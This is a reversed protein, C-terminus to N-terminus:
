FQWAGLKAPKAYPTILSEAGVQSKKHCVLVRTRGGVEPIGDPVIELLTAEFEGCELGRVRSPHRSVVEEVMRSWAVDAAEARVIWEVHGMAWVVEGQRLAVVYSQGDSEYRAELVDGEKLTDLLEAPVSAWASRPATTFFPFDVIMRIGWKWRWMGEIRLAGHERHLRPTRGLYMPHDTHAPIGVSQGQVPFPFRYDFTFESSIAM